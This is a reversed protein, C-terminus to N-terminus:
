SGTVTGAPPEGTLTVQETASWRGWLSLVGGVATVITTVYGALSAEDGEAVNLGFFMAIAVPVTIIGGWMGKSAFISKFKEM